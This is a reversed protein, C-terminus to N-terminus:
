LILRRTQVRFYSGSKLPFPNAAWPDPPDCGTSGSPRQLTVFVRAWFKPKLFVLWLPIRFLVSFAELVKKTDLSSNEFSWIEIKFETARFETWRRFTPNERFDFHFRPISMIEFFGGINWIKNLNNQDTTSILRFISLELFFLQMDIVFSLWM